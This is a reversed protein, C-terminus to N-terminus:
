RRDRGRDPRQPIEFCPGRYHDVAEDLMAGHPSLKEFGKAAITRVDVSHTFAAAGENEVMARIQAARTEAEQKTAFTEHIRQGSVMCAVQWATKGSTYTLKHIPPWLKTKSKASTMAILEKERSMNGILDLGIQMFVQLLPPLTTSHPPRSFRYPWKDIVKSNEFFVSCDMVFYPKSALEEKAIIQALDRRSATPIGIEAL